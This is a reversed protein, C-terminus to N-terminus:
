FVYLNVVIDQIGGLAVMIHQLLDSQKAALVDALDMELILGKHLLAATQLVLQKEYCIGELKSLRSAAFFVSKAHDLNHYANAPMHKKALAYVKRVKRFDNDKIM